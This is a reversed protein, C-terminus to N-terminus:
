IGKKSTDDGCALIRGQEFGFEDLKRQFESALIRLIDNQIQHNKKNEENAMIRDYAYAGFFKARAFVREHIGRWM